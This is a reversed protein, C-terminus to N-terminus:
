KSAGEKDIEAMVAKMLRHASSRKASLGRSKAEKGNHRDFNVLVVTGNKRTLWGVKLLAESFGSCATLRDLLPIVSEPVSGKQTHANFWTWVRMMKGLVADAEINLLTALEFIEPKDPTGTELKIWESM